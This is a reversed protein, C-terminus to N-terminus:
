RQLNGRNPAQQILTPLIYNAGRYAYATGSLLFTTDEGNEHFIKEADELLRCPMLFVPPDNLGSADADFHFQWPSAAGIAPSLRGRRNIIFQGERLLRKASASNSGHSTHDAAADVPRARIPQAPEIMPNEARRRLLENLVDEASPQAEGGDSEDPLVVTTAPASSPQTTPADQSVAVAAISGILLTAALLYHRTFM